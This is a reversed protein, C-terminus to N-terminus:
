LTNIKAHLKTNIATIGEAMADIFAVATNKFCNSYWFIDYTTEPVDLLFKGFCVFFCSLANMLSMAIIYPKVRYTFPYFSDTLWGYIPKIAWFLSMKADFYTTQDAPLKLTNALFNFNIGGCYSSWGSNLSCFYMM